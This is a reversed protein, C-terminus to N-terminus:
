ASPHATQWEAAARAIDDLAAPNGISSPDAAKNPDAGLFIKKVPVELRKGNLTRPLAPVAIMRDPVHRPSLRTRLAAAVRSRLDDGIDAVTTGAAPAVLLLLEGADRGIVTTDVLLTDAFEPFTDLVAYFESTGMRVGGRNLTADSRGYVVWSGRDTHKVWDGHRWINPYQAFYSEHYRRGDDDNWFRLPMSPMPKTVVFEGVENTLAGGEDDFAEAQVGLCSVQLEGAHVPLLPVCGLFATAVDTGGSISGVFLDSKVHEYLWAFGEVSLPSGTTGLSRLRDFRHNAAPDIGERLCTHLFAASTGFYTIGEQEAMDWLHDLTPYAPNGDYCVVTTGSLLGGIVINWMIWGTTTFWFFRDDPGLDLHLSAMKVLELVVGGHGHVISKPLGTTGSTYVVWLPHEFDVPEVTLSPVPRDTALFRDWAITTPLTASTTDDPNTVTVTTTVSPLGAQLQAVVESRDHWKGNYRYGPVALLVKPEVQRFRDLVSQAGFDPSCCTWIAGLAATALFTAVTDPMHTLYAAVRDGRQVGAARLGSAIRAVRDHLENFTIESRTSESVFVLAVRDDRRHLVQDAYNLTSGEFWRTGPMPDDSLVATGRTGRVGGFDWISAWFDDLHDVSWRHLDEYDAVEVSREAALWDMYARIRSAAKREPTPEWLLDGETIRHGAPEVGV